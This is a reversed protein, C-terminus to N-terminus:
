EDVEVFHGWDIQKSWDDGDFPRQRHPGVLLWIVKIGRPAVAPAPGGGDTGFVLVDPRKAEPMQAVADFVPRFDTGGGGKVCSALERFSRVERVAHVAADCAFFSLSGACARLISNSESLVRLIETQEGMSGSTDIAFGIRPRHRIKGPMCISPHVSSHLRSIRRYTHRVNGSRASQVAARSLANLKSRWDVKSPKLQTDAWRQLGLPVSGVGHAQVHARIAEATAKATLALDVESRALNITKTVGHEDTVQEQEQKREEEEDHATGACGGCSGHGVGHSGHRKKEREQEKLMLDYYEEGTLGNPAPSDDELRICSPVFGGGDPLPIKMEHIDDNIAADDALNFTRPDFGYAQQRSLTNDLIHRAEHILVGAIEEPTWREVAEREWLLVAGKTVAFTGKGGSPLTGLPVEKPVMAMLVHMFYPVRIQAYYRAAAMKTMPDM